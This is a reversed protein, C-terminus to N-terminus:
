TTVTAAETPRPLTATGVWGGWAAAGLGLALAIFAWLAGKGIGSAATEGAQRAKQEMQPQMQRFQQDWATLLSTAQQQDMNHKSTLMSVVQDRDQPSQQAGGNKEMRTLAAALAPDKQALATIQGPTQEGERGTPPLLAGSQPVASRLTDTVSSMAQGGGQGGQGSLASGLLAGAGGVVAGTATALLFLMTLTSASWTVIGHLMGDARRPGGSLRGAVCSGIWISILGTVLMWIAAGIGLGKTPNAETLPNITAAGIAAGLLTFMIQVVITVTLGAFIAGWSVRRVRSPALRPTTATHHVETQAAHHVQHVEEEKM